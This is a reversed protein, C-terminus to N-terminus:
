ILFTRAILPQQLFLGLPFSRTFVLVYDGDANAWHLLQWASEVWGLWLLSKNRWFSDFVIALPLLMLLWGMPMPCSSDTCRWRWATVWIRSFWIWVSTRPWRMWLLSPVIPLQCWSLLIFRSRASWCVPWWTMCVPIQRSALRTPATEVSRDVTKWVHHTSRSSTTRTWTWKVHKKEPFPPQWAPWSASQTSTSWKSM